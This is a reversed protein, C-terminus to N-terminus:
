STKIRTGFNRGWKKETLACHHSNENGGSDEFTFLPRLIAEVSVVCFIKENDPNMCFNVIFDRQIKEYPVETVSSEVVASVQQDIEVFGSYSLRKPPNQKIKWISIRCPM